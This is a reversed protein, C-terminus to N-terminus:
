RVFTFLRQGPVLAVPPGEYRMAGLAPRGGEEWTAYDLERFGSSVFERRIGDNLDERSRGRSWLVTAGARCLQPAARVTRLVDNNSINGFIGVLLLLDAPVAASYVDPAGADATLVEVQQLGAAAARDRAQQAIAPHLEVLTVSVRDADKREALVEIVDRGDGSCLSLVRLPGRAVALVDRIHKQATRLRWSPGSAPDDYQQHWQQYDRLQDDPPGPDFSDSM